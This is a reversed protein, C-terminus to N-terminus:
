SLVTRSHSPSQCPHSNAAQVWSRSCETRRSGSLLKSGATALPACCVQSRSTQLLGVLGNAFLQFSATRVAITAVFFAITGTGVAITAVFLLFSATGSTIAGTGVAITSAFLAITGTGLAITPAFLELTPPVSAIQQLLFPSQQLELRSRQLLVGLCPTQTTISCSGVSLSLAIRQFM